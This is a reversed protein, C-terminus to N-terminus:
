GARRALARAIRRWRPVDGQCHHLSALGRTFLDLAGPYNMTLAIKQDCDDITLTIRVRNDPTTHMTWERVNGEHIIM